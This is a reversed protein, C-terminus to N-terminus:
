LSVVEMSGSHARIWNSVYRLEDLAHDNEKCPKDQKSGDRNESWMYSSFERVMNKCDPDVTLRPKGDPRRPLLEQVIQIGGFVDNDAEVVPLGAENLAAILTAASPDVVVAEVERGQGSGRVEGCFAKAQKIVASELQGTHYWERAVHLRDDGDLAYLHMACPNAFGEDIGVLFRKWGQWRLSERAKVNVAEDFAEYILGEAAVWQGLFLRARRHGTLHDLSALYEASLSPNDEHRSMIRTMKNARVRELLWHGPFSPNCEAVMQRYPAVGFRMRSSLNEWDDLTIEEAQNVLVFDYEGSLIHGVKDLGGVVCVSGNPHRYQTRHQRTPGVLMPSLRPLVVNEWTVLVTENMSARVKRLLLCRTGPHNDMFVYLKELCARTKGTGAPGDMLIERDRCKWLALAGGLPEYAPTYYVM